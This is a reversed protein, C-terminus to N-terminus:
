VANVKAYAVKGICVLTLHAVCPLRSVVEKESARSKQQNIDRKLDEFPQFRSLFLKM